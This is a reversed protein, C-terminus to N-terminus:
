SVRVEGFGILKKIFNIGFENIVLNSIDLSLLTKKNKLTIQQILLQILTIILDLWTLGFNFIQLVVEGFKLM